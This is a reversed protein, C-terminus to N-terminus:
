LLLESSHGVPNGGFTGSKINLVLYVAIRVLQDFAVVGFLMFAFLLVQHSEYKMDKSTQPM